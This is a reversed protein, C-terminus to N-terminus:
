GLRHPMQELSAKHQIANGPWMNSTQVYIASYSQVTQPRPILNTEWYKNQVKLWDIVKTYGIHDIISLVMISSSPIYHTATSTHPYPHTFAHPNHIYMGKEDEGAWFHPATKSHCPICEKQPRWALMYGPYLLTPAVFLQSDAYALWTLLKQHITPPSLRM